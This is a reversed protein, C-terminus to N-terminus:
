AGVLGRYLVVRMAQATEEATGHIEFELNGVASGTPNGTAADRFLMPLQDTNYGSADFPVVFTNEDEIYDRTSAQQLAESYNKEYEDVRVNDVWVDVKGVNKSFIFLRMWDDAKPETNIKKRGNTLNFSTMTHREFFGYQAPANKYYSCFARMEYVDADNNKRTHVRLKLYTIGMTGLQYLEQQNIGQRTTDGFTLVASSRPTMGDTKYLQPLMGKSKLYAELPNIEDTFQYQRVEGLNSVLELQDVENQLEGIPVLEGNKYLDFYIRDYTWEAGIQLNCEAWSGRGVGNFGPASNFLKPLVTPM